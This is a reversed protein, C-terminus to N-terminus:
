LMALILDVETISCSLKSAIEESDMGQEYLDQVKKSLSQNHTREPVSSEIIPTEYDSRTNQMQEEAGQKEVPEAGDDDEKKDQYIETIILPVEKYAAGESTVNMEQKIINEQKEEFLDQQGTKVPEFTSEPDLTQNNKQSAKRANELYANINNNYNKKVPQVKNFDQFITSKKNSLKNIRDAEAIMDRLRSSAQNFMELKQEEEDLLKQIRKAAEGSLYVDRDTAKDIDSIFKNMQERTKDIISDTSFIKKFRALFIIWLIINVACVSIVFINM